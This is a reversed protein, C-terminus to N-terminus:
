ELLVRPVSGLIKNSLVRFTYVSQHLQKKHYLDVASCLDVVPNETNYHLEVKKVSNCVSLSKAFSGTNLFRSSARWCEKIKVQLEQLSDISYCVSSLYGAGFDFYPGFAFKGDEGRTFCVNAWHRDVNLTLCDLTMMYSFYESADLGTFKKVTELINLYYESPSLAEDFLTDIEKTSLNNVILQALTMMDDPFYLSKCFVSDKDREVYYKFYTYPVSLCNLLQTSILEALGQYYGFTDRKCYYGNKLFKEQTGKISNSLFYLEESTKVM